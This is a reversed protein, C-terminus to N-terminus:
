ISLQRRCGVHASNGYALEIRKANITADTTSSVVSPLPAAEYKLLDAGRQGWEYPCSPHPCNGGHSRRGQTANSIAADGYRTHSKTTV